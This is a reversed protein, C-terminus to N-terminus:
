IIIERNRFTKFPTIRDKIKLWRVPKELGLKECTYLTNFKIKETSVKM